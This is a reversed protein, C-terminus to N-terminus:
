RPVSPSMICRALAIGAATWEDQPLRRLDRLEVHRMTLPLRSIIVWLVPVPPSRGLEAM